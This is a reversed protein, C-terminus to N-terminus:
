INRNRLNECVRVIGKRLKMAEPWVIEDCKFKIDVGRLDFHNECKVEEVVWVNCVRDILEEKFEVKTTLNQHVTTPQVM